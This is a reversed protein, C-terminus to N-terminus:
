FGRNRRIEIKRSLERMEEIKAQREEEARKEAEIAAIIDAENFFADNDTIKKSMDEVFKSASGSLEFLKEITKSGEIDEEPKHSTVSANVLDVLISLRIYKPNRTSIFERFLNKSSSIENGNRDWILIRGWMYKSLDLSDKHHDRYIVRLGDNAVIEDLRDANKRSFGTGVIIINKYDLYENSFLFSNLKEDITEKNCEVVKKLKAKMGTRLLIESTAGNLDDTRFLISDRIETHLM